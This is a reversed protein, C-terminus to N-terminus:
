ITAPNTHLTSSTSSATMGSSNARPRSASHHSHRRFVRSTIYVNNTADNWGMIHRIQMSSADLGGRDVNEGAFGHISFLTESSFGTSISPCPLGSAM